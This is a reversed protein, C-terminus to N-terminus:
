LLTTKSIGQSTQVVELLAYSLVEDGVHSATNGTWEGHHVAQM